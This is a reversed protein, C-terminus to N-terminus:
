RQVVKPKFGEEQLKKTLRLTEKQTKFAGILLRIKGNAQRGPISYPVYGKSRLDGELKELEQDSDSLGVQIAYPKRVVNAYRFRRKKLASAAKQAEKLTGHYGIFVRYWDGKGLIHAHCTFALDRKKRLNTAVLNSRERHRLSCIQITYPYFGQKNTTPKGKGIQPPMRGPGKFPDEKEKQPQAIHEERLRKRAKYSELRKIYGALEETKGEKKLLAIARKQAEIADGLKGAETYTMALTDLFDAEPNLEVAKQALEVAKTANQYRKDPCIALIWALQHYAEAYQPNLELARTCDAIARDYDGKYFRVTGRNNYAEAYQPNLELARTCDAIARDYDGKYFWATGRNNYAEAYQPNLELARTCDAIARDYDGKYFWATGRNNYATEIAISFAKIADDFRQSELFSLGRQSCNEVGLSQGPFLLCIAVLLPNWLPMIGKM